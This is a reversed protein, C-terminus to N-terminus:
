LVAMSVQSIYYTGVARPFLFILQDGGILNGPARAATAGNIARASYQRAYDRTYVLPNEVPYGDIRWRAVAPRGIFSSPVNLKAAVAVARNNPNSHVTIKLRPGYPGAELSATGVVDNLAGWTIEWADSTPQGNVISSFTPDVVLNEAPTPVRNHVLVRDHENFVSEVIVRPHDLMGADRQATIAGITLRSNDDVAVVDRLMAGTGDTNLVNIRVNQANVLNLRRGEDIHILRDVDARWVNEFQAVIGTPLDTALYELWLGRITAGGSVKLPLARAGFPGEIWGSEFLYEGRLVVHATEPRFNPRATGELQLGIIRNDASYGALDGFELSTTGPDSVMTSQLTSHYVRSATLDIGRGGASIWVNQIRADVLGSRMSEHARIGMANTTRIMIDAIGAGVNFGHADRSVFEFTGRSLDGSTNTILTANGFGRVWVGSPIQIPQSVFLSGRPFTVTGGINNGPGPIGNGRPLSDIAQQIALTDDLSDNPIAGFSQVDVVTTGFARVTESATISSPAHDSPAQERVTFRTVDVPGIDHSARVSDIVLHSINDVSVSDALRAGDALHLAAVRLALVNRIELRRGAHLSSFRDIEVTDAKEITAVVGNPAQAGSLLTSRRLTARGSLHLTKVPAGVDTVTLGEVTNDGNLVIMAKEPRFNARATGLVTFGYVRNIAGFGDHTGLVLAASGPNEVVVNRIEAQYPRETSLDVSVGGTSFKLDTLTLGVVDGALPALSVGKAAATMITMNSVGARINYGNGFQSIIEVTGRNFDPSSNNIVTSHGQGRLQVASPLRLPASTNFTGAPFLVAGGHIGFPLSDIARQIAATDDRGDNPFAGFSQVDIGTATNVLQGAVMSSPYVPVNVTYTGLVRAQGSNGQTDRVEFPNLSVTYTGNDAADWVGGPASMKYWALVSSNGKTGGFYRHFRATRGFGNPGTVTIDQNDLTSPDVAVDDTYNVRFLYTSTWIDINPASLSGVPRGDLLQRPELREVRPAAPKFFAASAARRTASAL